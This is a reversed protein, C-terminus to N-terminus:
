WTTSDQDNRSGEIKGDEWYSSVFTTGEEWDLVTIKDLNRLSESKKSGIKTERPLEFFVRFEVTYVMPLIMTFSEVFGSM